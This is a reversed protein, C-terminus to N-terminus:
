RSDLWIRRCQGHFNQWTGATKIIKPFAGPPGLMRGSPSHRVCSKHKHQQLCNGVSLAPGGGNGTGVTLGTGAPGGRGCNDGSADFARGMTGGFVGLNWAGCGACSTCGGGDNHLVVNDKDEALVGSSEVGSGIGLVDDGATTSGEVGVDFGRSVLVGSSGDARAIIEDGGGDDQAGVDLGTAVHAGAGLVRDGSGAAVVDCIAGGLVGLVGGVGDIARLIHSSGDAAHLGDSSASVVLVKSAVKRPQIPWLLEIIADYHQLVDALTVKEDEEGKGVRTGSNMASARGQGDSVLNDGARNLLISYFRFQQQISSLFSSHNCGQVKGARRLGV